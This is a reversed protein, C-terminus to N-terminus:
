LVKDQNFLLTFNSNCLEHALFIGEWPLICPQELRPVHPPVHDGAGSFSNRPVGHGPAGRHVASATLQQFM